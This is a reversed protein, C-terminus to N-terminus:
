PKKDGAPPALPVESKPRNAEAASDAAAREKTGREVARELGAPNVKFGYKTRLVTAVPQAVDVYRAQQNMLQDLYQDIRAAAIRERQAVTKGSDALEKPSVGLEDWTGAVVQTFRGRLETLDAPDLQVKASDAQRLLLENRVMSRLFGAVQSDPAQQLGQEIQPRRPDAEIWRIMRGVTFDGAKSTALVAGDKAHADLDKAANRMTSVANDKLKVNGNEVLRTIYVSDAARLADANVAQAFEDKVEAFPTRRIIHYGFDTQVLGSVQGPKLTAVASDFEKVMAGKPFLGLDGGRAASGPDQSEKKAVDAFNTPTIEARVAEAKKRAEDRQAPTATQPVAILIHRAALFEGKDYRAELNTTDLGTFTKSLQEHWKGMREQAIIPWLAEDVLKPDNLSDGRAAAQGVLQYNVWLDAISRAIEPTAPVRAHGLLAGLRETSLEQSGAKAAVDVHATMAEKFGKCAGLPATLAILAILSRKM